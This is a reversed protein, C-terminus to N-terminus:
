RARWALPHKALARDRTVLRLGEVECQGLLLRDFPDNTAPPEALEQLAHRYDISLVTFGLSVFYDPFKSLPLLLSLKGLRHKIAIEWLSAVSVIKENADSKVLLDIAAGLKAVERHTIALLVHSDLLLRV